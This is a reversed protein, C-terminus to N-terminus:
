VAMQFRLMPAPDPVTEADAAPTLVLVQAPGQWEKSDDWLGDRELADWDTRYLSLVYEGKPVKVVAGPDEDPDYDPSLRLNNYGEMCLKGSPLSIPARQVSHWRGTKLEADTLPAGSAVEISLADDQELEYAVLQGKKALGVLKPDNADEDSFGELLSPDAQQIAKGNAEDYLFVVLGENYVNVAKSEARIKKM